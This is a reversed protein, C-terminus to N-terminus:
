KKLDQVRTGPENYRRYVATPTTFYFIRNIVPVRSLWFIAPYTLFAAAIDFAYWAVNFVLERNMGTKFAFEGSYPGLFAGAAGFLFIWLPVIYLYAGQIAKKPCYAICRECSECKWTWYPKADKKGVMKIANFPCYDACLGCSNCKFDAFMVKSLLLRGVIIYGLSLPILLIGLLTFIHGLYLKRGDLVARVLMGAKERAREVFWQSHEKTMGWHVVLWNSPMDLGMTARIDYGKIALILGILVAATGELGPLHWPGIMWGARSASIIVHTGKSRPMRLAFIIMGWPATFGHTPLFMGLLTNGAIENEPSAKEIPVSVATIGRKKAEECAWVSARYSNGTGSMFYMLANKYM